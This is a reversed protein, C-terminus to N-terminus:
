RTASRPLDPQYISGEFDSAYDPSALARAVISAIHGRVAREAQAPDRNRIAEVIDQHEAIFRPGHTATEILRIRVREFHVQQPRLLRAPWENGASAYLVRHFRRNAVLTADLDGRVYARTADDIADQLAPVHEREGAEASLRAALVELALRCTYLDGLQAPTLAVIELKGAHNRSLLGDTELRALATRLPTRGVALQETLARESVRSGPALRGSILWGRLAEYTQDAVTLRRITPASSDM